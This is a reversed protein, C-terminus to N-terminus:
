RHTTWRPGTALWDAEWAAMRRKDLERCALMGIIILITALSIVGFTGALYTQGAIQSSQLPPDTLQGTETVWITVTTGAPTGAKM